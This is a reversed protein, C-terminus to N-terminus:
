HKSSGCQSLPFLHLATREQTLQTHACTCASAQTQDAQAPWGPSEEPVQARKENNKKEKTKTNQLQVLIEM